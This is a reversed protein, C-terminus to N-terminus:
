SRGREAARAAAIAEIEAREFVLRARGSVLEAHAPMPMIAGDPTKYGGQAYWNKVTQERVDLLAAVEQPTFWAREAQAMM